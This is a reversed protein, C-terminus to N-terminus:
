ECLKTSNTNNTTKEHKLQKKNKFYDGLLGEYGGMADIIRKDQECERCYLVMDGDKDRAARIIKPNSGHKKCYIM